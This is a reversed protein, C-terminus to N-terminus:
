FVFELLRRSEIVSYGSAIGLWTSLIGVLVRCLRTDPLFSRYHRGRLEVIGSRSGLFALVPYVNRDTM